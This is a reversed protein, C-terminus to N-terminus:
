AAGRVEGLTLMGRCATCRLAGQVPQLPGGACRPCPVSVTLRGRPKDTADVARPVAAVLDGLLAPAVWSALLRRSHALLVRAAGSATLRPFPGLLGRLADNLPDHLGRRADVADFNVPLGPSTSRAVTEGHRGRRGVAAALDGDIGVCRRLLTRLTRWDAACLQGSPAPAACYGCRNM